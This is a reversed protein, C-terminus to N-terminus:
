YKTVIKVTNDKKPSVSITLEDGEIDKTNVTYSFGHKPDERIEMLKWDKRELGYM